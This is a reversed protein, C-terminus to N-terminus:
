GVMRGNHECTLVDCYRRCLGNPNPGFQTKAVAYEIRSIEYQWRAWLANYDKREFTGRIPKNPILFCLVTDVKEIEPHKAMMLLAMLELQKIDAYKATQSTKWDLARGLGKELRFNTLDAKGRCWVDKSWYGVPQLNKDVAMELECITDGKWKKVPEIMPLYHAFQEPMPEDKMLHDEIAKHVEDGYKGAENQVFPIDKLVYRHYYQRPCTKFTKWQTYTWTIPKVEISDDSM